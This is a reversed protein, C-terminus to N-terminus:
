DVARQIGLRGRQKAPDDPLAAVIARVVATFDARTIPDAMAPDDPRLRVVRRNGAGDTARRYTSAVAPALARAMPSPSFMRVQHPHRGPRRDWRFEVEPDAAYYALMAAHIQELSSLM